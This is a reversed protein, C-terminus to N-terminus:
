GGPVRHRPAQWAGLVAGVLLLLLLLLLAGVAGVTGLVPRLGVVVVVM